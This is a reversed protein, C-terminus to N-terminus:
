PRLIRPDLHRSRTATFSGLSSISPSQIIDFVSMDAGAVLALMNRIEVVVLSDVGYHTLSKQIDIEDEILFIDRVKKCIARIIIDRAEEFTPAKAIELGIDTTPAETSKSGSVADRSDHPRLPAFRADHCMGTGVWHSGPSTNVGVLVQGSFPSAIAYEIAELVDVESLVQYGLKSLREAVGEHEAAYGISEVVGLDISVGPLGRSTRYCALADQFTGGAAYNSQGSSGFVGTLSSLMVFFDLQTASLEEHLYKSGDVKPKVAAEFDAINMRELISDQLVMATHIVGRIPPLSMQCRKLVETLENKVSIDCAYVHVKCGLDAMDAEFPATKETTTASRSFIIVCKAGHEALWQCVSQGIGGLGGVVLYSANSLLRIIKQRPRTTIVDGPEAKVVIKGVHKGAQMLRLVKELQSLPYVTVPTVATIRGQSYMKMIEMLVRQLRPGKYEQFQMLDLHTFTVSLDFGSMGLESNIEIDRKGIEVFRGFRALCKFAEQLLRGSLSNIIVDVGQGQTAHLVAANFSDDRSSFIHDAPIGYNEILHDRKERTSVTTFIEAGVNKALIIAAQGVGGTAAHILIREGPELRGLDFISIYATTFVMPISAAMEFTLADPIRVVSTWRTQVSSAYHGKMLAAVRDGLKFGHAAADTGINTIIGACEFGMTTESPLQGMAVMVDRFNVGFAKPEIQLYDGPLNASIDQYDKFSLTNLLGPTEVSACFSPINWPPLGNTLPTKSLSQSPAPTDLEVDPFYRLVHIVGDREAYEFDEYGILPPPKLFRKLIVALHSINEDDWTDRRPDLDFSILCRGAFEARVSRLFGTSLSSDVHGCEFAGGRTIWLVSAARTCMSKIGEWTTTNPKSLAAEHLDGLYICVKGDPDITPLYQLSPFSGLVDFIESRVAEIWTIPPASDADRLVIIAEPKLGGEAKLDDHQDCVCATSSMVSFSYFDEDECDHVEVEIGSFGTDRLVSNWAKISLSPTLSREEEEGIWWEPLLGFTFSVDVQDQTTEVMFLMGGPKLLRRVNLLTDKISKTAHLVQSAIVLDYAELEFGQSPLDQEIDLKKFRLLDGWAGFKTRAAEFFGPSVDTFDYSSAMSRRGSKEPGIVALVEMTAAGTGGGVELIRARPNKNIYYEVLKCLQRYSRRLKPSNTYYRELLKDKLLLELPTIEGRLIVPISPGLRCVMEGVVSAKRTKEIIANKEGRTFHAWKSSRPGLGDNVALETQNKMWTCYKERYRVPRSTTGSGLNLIADQFFFYCTKRLDMIDELENDPVLCCLQLRLTDKRMSTLNPVWKPVIYNAKEYREAATTLTTGLSQLVLGGLEIVPRSRVIGHASEEYVSANIEASQKSEQLSHSYSRFLAGIKASINHSLWLSKISKPIMGYRMESRSLNLATYCSQIASDFTTPHIVHEHQWQHPMTAAVDPISFISLAQNRRTRISKLNQFSPGHNIGVSRLNAYLRQPSLKVRYREPALPPSLPATAAGGNDIWRIRKDSFQVCISGKCLTTWSNEANVSYITFNKWGSDYNTGDTRHRLELQVEIGAPGGPIVLAQLIDVDKLSYSSIEYNMPNCSRQAAEIAMTILGAAPYVMNSQVVHDRIWPLDTEKIVNKWAPCKPNMGPIVYGLLDHYGYSRQRYARNERPEAWYRTRHNWPYHPLNHIVKAGQRGIPFNVAGLDVPYGNGLLVCVLKQMTTIANSRRILCTGYAIKCGKFVPEGLIEQIPGGLAGHPGIEIILDVEATKHTSSEPSPLCMNQFAEVFRVPKVMGDGWHVPNRIAKVSLLRGGTVPSSYVVGLEDHSMDKAPPRFDFNGAIWAEYPQKSEDMHFTHYATDVRLRRCFVGDAALAHELEELACIDGSVTTSTPSNVCAVSLRGPTIRTIYDEAHASGLAVATMSGKGSMAFLGRSFSIGIAERKSIAGAAYAAAIEGSSHSTVASCAVAWSSLLDVLAVQIAVCAPLSISSQNVRSTVADRLLEDLLDWSSGFEKLIIASEVLSTKFVPYSEILERGMGWWQAGQGTFVFGLRPVDSSKLPRISKPDLSHAVEAVSEAQLSVTWPFRTRCQGLTYALDDLIKPKKRIGAATIYDKLHEAMAKVGREDKASLTIVRSTINQPLSKIEGLGGRGVQDDPVQSTRKGAPKVVNCTAAYSTYDEMIVHANSGGYGFSNVSARRIGESDPWLQCETPIKLNMTKFDIMPNPEEFNMNPPVQRKELALAVKIVSALGSATETHGINTKVSGILLPELDPRGPRFLSAIANAETPDGTPTGTGHTEFYTTQTPDLGAELYCSRLLNIQAELSPSTITETKGDQNIMTQRIVARIPNGDRIADDLRKLIITASGEGRGYGSARSDFSFSKGDASLLTLSSMVAFMDPNLIINAGGVVSMSSERVKLSQCAQHLATLSTSCGTDITMSPGRFDYFHSLRNAAMAGGVGLLFHRSLSDRDQILSEAYDRFFAGAFVSTVSGAVDQLRLGASELAEYTTELQMRFQPDMNSAAEYSLNFFNGDFAAPNEALFHGGAVNLTGPKDNYRHYFGELNFRSPPIESWGSRAEACMNWLKEPSDVDGCFRCAMGIVAIPTSSDM